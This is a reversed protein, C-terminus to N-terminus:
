LKLSFDEKDLTLNPNYYPDGKALLDKWKKQFRDIESNFRKVKEETDECGRSISEHHYLETYPTYVILYGKERIKLCLDVDNFAYSYTEDFGGAEQFVTKKVMMCAATVASFNQPVKLRGMMGFSQKSLYKHAHGAVGGIGLIVGGHQVTNDPYYLLGGAAGVDRRQVFELMSEIWGPSIVETDNNLFVIYESDVRDVAYNNIASFNFPMDYKLISINRHKKLEEYYLFTKEEISANDVVLISYKKYTSKQLISDICRKLIEIKDKTPILITVDTDHNIQYQIRYSSLFLGDQVMGNFGTRQIHDALAKKASEFAYKKAGPDQAASGDIIRWHYLIKPIHAIKQTLESCRLFLDYDQAGEYGKRFGGAADIITKKLVTFHCIYNYSRLMDPSWDPKFFPDKRKEKQTIKDEDSYIFDIEKNENLLKVVEYLADMALEDDHDLMGAFEGAALSLAENSAKSIGMNNQIYKIKIRKDKKSFADLVELIHKQTSGDDAICLEWNNYLQNIVSEIAKVLWKKDVNYVPMIISIKPKYQFLAIKSEINQIKKKTLQNIDMWIDYDTKGIGTLAKVRIRLNNKVKNIFPGLGESSITVLSRQLLPTKGLIKQYIIRKLFEATRWVKSQKLLNLETQINNIHIDKNSLATEINNIHIDKDQRLEEFQRSQEQLMASNAQYKGWIETLAPDYLSVAEKLKAEITNVSKIIRTDDGDVIGSIAQYLDRIWKSLTKDKTLTTDTVRNHRMSDQLFLKIESSAEMPNKPWEFGFTKEVRALLGKWDSLLEEYTVFMRSSNRTGKESEILHKLWLLCSKGKSFGDRKALSSVVELPNRVIIIFFPKNNTHELISHWAPLFRCIRPDKVGWFPSNFFDRELISIIELKYAEVSDSKWWRKPLARVDDWSSGLDQFLKENIQYIDMHEWFGKVNDEQPPILNKGLDVGCLNLTRALASTGSRHMGLVIIARRNQKVSKKM